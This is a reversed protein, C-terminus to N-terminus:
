APKIVVDQKEQQNSKQYAACHAQKDARQGIIQPDCQGSFIQRAGRLQRKQINQKQTHEECGKVDQAPLQGRLADGPADGSSCFFNYFSIKVDADRLACGSQHQIFFIRLDDVAEVFHGPLQSTEFGQARIKDGVHGMFHFCRQRHHLVVAREQLRGIERFFFTQFVGFAHGISDFTKRIHHGINQLQIPQFILLDERLHFVKVKPLLEALADQM